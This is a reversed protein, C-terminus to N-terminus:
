SVSIIPFSSFQPLFVPRQPLLIGLGPWGVAEPERHTAMPKAFTNEGTQTSLLILLLKWAWEVSWLIWKCSQKPTVSVWRRRTMIYNLSVQIVQVDRLGDSQSIVTIVDHHDSLILLLRGACRSFLSLNSVQLLQFLDWFYQLSCLFGCIFFCVFYTEM